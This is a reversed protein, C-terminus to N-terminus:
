TLTCYYQGPTNALPNDAPVLDLLERDTKGAWYDAVELIQRAVAKGWATRAANRRAQRIWAQRWMTHGRKKSRVLAALAPNLPTRTLTTKEM